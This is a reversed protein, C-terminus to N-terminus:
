FPSIPRHHTHKAAVPAYSLSATFSSDVAFVAGRLQGGFRDCDGYVGHMLWQVSMAHGVHRPQSSKTKIKQQSLISFLAIQPYM